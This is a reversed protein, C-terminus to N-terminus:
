ANRRRRRVERRVAAIAIASLFVALVAIIWPPGDNRVITVFMLLSVFFWAADSFLPHRTWAPPQPTPKVPEREYPM